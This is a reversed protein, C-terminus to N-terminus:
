NDSHRYVNLGIQEIFISMTIRIRQENLKSDPYLENFLHEVQQRIRREIISDIGKLHQHQQRLQNEQEMIKEITEMFQGAKEPDEREMAKTAKEFARMRAAIIREEEQAREGQWVNEMRNERAQKVNKRLQEGLFEKREDDNMHSWRRRENFHELHKNVAGQVKEFAGAALNRMLRM